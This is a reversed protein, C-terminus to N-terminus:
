EGDELAIRPDVFTYLIDIILYTVLYLISLFITTGVILFVDKSLVSTTLVGGLGPVAFIIEIVLSGTIIAVVLPGLVTLIPVLTNRFAHKFIIAKKSVGKAKALTIYNSNLSELMETRTFRAMSAITFITLSFIPLILAM